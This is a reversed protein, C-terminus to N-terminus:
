VQEVVPRGFDKQAECERVELMMRRQRSLGKMEVLGKVLVVM